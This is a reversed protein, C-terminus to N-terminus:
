FCRGQESLSVSKNLNIKYQGEITGTTAFSWCSGCSGQNKVNTVTGNHDRWDFSHPMSILLEEETKGEEKLLEVWLEEFPIEKSDRKITMEKYGLSSKFEADTMDSFKNIGYKASGLDKRNMKQIKALNNKFIIRRLQYEKLSNLYSKGHQRVYNAFMTELEIDDHQSHEFLHSISGSTVASTSKFLYITAILSAIISNVLIM